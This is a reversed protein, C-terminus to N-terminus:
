RAAEGLRKREENLSRLRDLYLLMRDYAWASAMTSDILTLETEVTPDVGTIELCRVLREPLPMNDLETLLANLQAQQDPKLDEFKKQFEQPDTAM